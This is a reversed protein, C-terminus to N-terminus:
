GRHRRLYAIAKELVDISDKALGLLPNCRSCLLDRIKGTEHCHDVALGKKFESQHRLCIACCGKQLAFLCNYEALTIGFNYKLAKDRRYAAEKKPNEIRRQRARLKRTVKRRSKNNKEWGVQATRHCKRCQTQYGDKMAVNRNFCSIPQPNVEGCAARSCSKVTLHLVKPVVKAM